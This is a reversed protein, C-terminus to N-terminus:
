VRYFMKGAMQRVIGKFELSLLYVLATSPDLDTDGCLRDIHMPETSLAEYLVREISGLSDLELDSNVTSQALHGVMGLEEQIETVSTVLKALSLRILEHNGAGAANFISCPITFVERNQENALHATILAGGRAFAEAVLVGRALGSIIRNRRPFNPADPKTGLPLESVLAGQEIIQHAMRNNRNPYIVDVGSGLVALTRGGADLAGQHAATDIGYALGSVVTFGAEALEKGFQYAVRKGYDTAKRTGVVAVAQEDQPLLTGRTWLFAPPDFIERLAKPYGEDWASILQAGVKEARAEQFSVAENIKCAAINEAILKGVGEVQQLRVAPTQLVETASGFQALLARIRGAGVGQVMSLALLARRESVEDPSPAFLSPM